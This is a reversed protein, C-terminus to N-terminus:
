LNKGVRTEVAGAWGLQEYFGLDLKSGDSRVLHLYTSPTPPSGLGALCNPKRGHVWSNVAALQQATLVWEGAKTSGRGESLAPASAKSFSVLPALAIASLLLRIKM